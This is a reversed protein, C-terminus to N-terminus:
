RAGEDDQCSSMWSSKRSGALDFMKRIGSMPIESIRQSIKMPADFALTYIFTRAHM